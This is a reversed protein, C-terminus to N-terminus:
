PEDMIKGTKDESEIEDQPLPERHLPESQISESGEPPNDLERMEGTVPIQEMSMPHTSETVLSSPANLNAGPDVGVGLRAVLEGGMWATVAAIAIGLFSTLLAVTDPINGDNNLRVLWSFSFLLVVALNGLGHMMGIRKARTDGPIALYDVLGFIAALLGGVVGAAINYFAVTALVGNRTILYLVDFIVSIVLLGVPFVILMQHIAHGFLKARSEM